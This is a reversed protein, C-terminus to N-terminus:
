LCSMNVQYLFNKTVNGNPSINYEFFKEHLNLTQGVVCKGKEVTLNLWEEADLTIDKDVELGRECV